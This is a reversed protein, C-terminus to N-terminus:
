REELGFAARLREADSVDLPRSSGRKMAFLTAPTALRVRVGEIERDEHELDEYGFASGLRAILDVPVGEGPPVYRVVPFEGSLDAATITAIEADDHLRRLATRLRSVNDEDPRVFLDVDETARVIGHLNVAVGGVLVYEVDDAELAALLRVVADRHMAGADCATQRTPASGPWTPGARFGRPLGVGIVQALRRGLTRVAGHPASVTAPPTTVRFAGGSYGSLLMGTLPRRAESRRGGPSPGLREPQKGHTDVQLSPGERVPVRPSTLGPPRSTM